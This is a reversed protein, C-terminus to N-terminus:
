LKIATHKYRAVYVAGIVGHQMKEKKQFGSLSFLVLITRISVSGRGGEGEALTCNAAMLKIKTFAVPWDFKRTKGRERERM